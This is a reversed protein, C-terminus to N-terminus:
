IMEVEILLPKFEKLKMTGLTILSDGKSFLPNKVSYYHSPMTMFLFACVVEGFACHWPERYGRLRYSRGPEVEHIVLWPIDAFIYNPFCAMVTGAFTSDSSRFVPLYPPMPTRYDCGYVPGILQGGM